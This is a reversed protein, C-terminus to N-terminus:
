YAAGEPLRNIITRHRPPRIGRVTPGVLLHELPHQQGVQGGAHAVHAHDDRADAVDLLQRNFSTQMKAIRPQDPETLRPFIKRGAGLQRVTPSLARSIHHADPGLGM